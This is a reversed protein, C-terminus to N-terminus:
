KSQQSVRYLGQTLDWLQRHTAAEAATAGQLGQQITALDVRRQADFETALQRIRLALERNQRTESQALLERVRRLVEADSVRPGAASAQTVTGAPPQSSELEQLRRDLAAVTASWEASTIAPAAVAAPETVQSPAAPATRAWGTRVTLGDAGYRVEVNAIAAAAALVLVAAAALGWVPSRYSRWTKAPQAAGSVIQFDLQSEPPAWAALHRRTGRLAALEDRCDACAALHMELTRREARDIEDYLYGVLLEKDCMHKGDM